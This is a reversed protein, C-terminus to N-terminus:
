SAPARHVRPTWTVYSPEEHLFADPAETVSHLDTERTRALLDSVDYPTRTVNPPLASWHRFGDAMVLPGALETAPRRRLPHGLRQTHWCERRADAIITADARGLAHAVLALSQYSFMPRARLMHWTRLAMAATRTGLVSGPGECFLFAAANQPNFGLQAFGEFIAIGAEAESAHWRDGGEAGLVGVQVRASAADIVLLPAHAALLQALSPM